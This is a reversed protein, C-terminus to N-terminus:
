GALLAEIEARTPLGGRAGRHQVKIAAAASAFALAEPLSAGDLRAAILAAHFCDGAGTTDVAEVRRAPHHALETMGHAVGWAGARGDTMIIWQGPRVLAGLSAVGLEALTGRQIFVIEAWEIATRLTADRLPAATEVDLAFMGGGAHAAEALAEVWAPDRPYTYVVRARTALALHAASLPQNRLPTDPLLIARRGAADTIVIAFPTTAGPVRALGAPDVGHARFDDVLLDTDADDGTWGAYAARLGLRAAACTANAIFGGPLRGILRAPYKDDALPLREVALTLDVALGGAGLFDYRDSM